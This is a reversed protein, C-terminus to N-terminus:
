MDDITLDQPQIPLTKNVYEMFTDWDYDATKALARLIIIHSKVANEGGECFFQHHKKRRYKNIKPNRTSLELMLNPAVRSYVLDNILNGFYLPYCGPKAWPVNRMISLDRLFGDDEFFKEWKKAEVSLYSELFRQYADAKKIKEYGTAEYILATIGIEASALLITKASASIINSIKVGNECARFIATCIKVLVGANYGYVVSNSNSSNKIRFRVPNELIDKIARELYMSIKKGKLFKEFNGGGKSLGLAKCIGSKSLVPTGNEDDLVYCDISLNGLKLPTEKPSSIAMPLKSSNNTIKQVISKNM